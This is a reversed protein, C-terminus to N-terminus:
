AALGKLWSQYALAEALHSEVDQWARHVKTAGYSGVTPNVLDRGALIKSVRRMVGIDFPYYAFYSAVFPMHFKLLPHDFAAVGSGAIMYHGPDGHEALIQAMEGQVFALTIPSQAKALSISEALLGSTLHMKRVYDNGKLQEALKATMPLVETYGVVRNLAMDTVLLAVELIGVNSFDNGNPLGTTEIDVWALYKPNTM